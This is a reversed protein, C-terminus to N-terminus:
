DPLSRGQSLAEPHVIPAMGKIWQFSPVHGVFLNAAWDEANDELRRVRLRGQEEPIWSGEFLRDRRIYAVFRSDPSWWLPTLAEKMKFLLKREKGSTRIMYYNGGELFAIWNGDPSWTPGTGEALAWSKKEQINYVRM